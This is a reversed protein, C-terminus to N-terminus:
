LTLHGGGVKVGRRKGASDKSGAKFGGARKTATRIGLPLTPNHLIQPLLTPLSLLSAVLSTTKRIIMTFLGHQTPTIQENVFLQHLRQNFGQGLFRDVEFIKLDRPCSTESTVISGRIRVHMRYGGRMAGEDEMKLGDGRM